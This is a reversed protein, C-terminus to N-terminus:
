TRRRVTYNFGQFTMYLSALCMVQGPYCMSAEATGPQGQVHGCRLGAWLAPLPGIVAHLPPAGSAGGM